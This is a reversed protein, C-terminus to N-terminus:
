IKIETVVAAKQVVELLILRNRSKFEKRGVNSVVMELCAHVHFCKLSLINKNEDSDNIKDEDNLWQLICLLKHRTGIKLWATQPM